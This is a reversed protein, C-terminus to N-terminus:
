MKRLASNFEMASTWSYPAAQVDTPRPIQLSLCAKDKRSSRSCWLSVEMMAASVGFPTEDLSRVIFNMCLAAAEAAEDGPVSVSLEEDFFRL